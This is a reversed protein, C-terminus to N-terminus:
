NKFTLSCVDKLFLVTKLRHKAAFYQATISSALGVVGLLILVFCMKMIYPKDQSTIGVDIIAAMVLPVLLEFSAELLKFLPGLVCEKKYDKIYILLKKVKTGGILNQEQLITGCNRIEIFLLFALIFNPTQM